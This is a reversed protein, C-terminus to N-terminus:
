APLLHGVFTLLQVQKTLDEETTEEFHFTLNTVEVKIKM